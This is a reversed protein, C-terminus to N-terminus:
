SKATTKYKRKASAEQTPTVSGFSFCLADVASGPVPAPSLEDLRHIFELPSHALAAQEDLEPRNSGNGLFAVVGDPINPKTPADICSQRNRTLKKDIADRAKKSEVHELNQELPTGYFLLSLLTTNTDLVEALHAGITNNLEPNDNLQMQLLTTNQRLMTILQSLTFVSLANNSFNISSLKPHKAIANILLIIEDSDKKTLKCDSMDLHVLTPCAELVLPLTTLIAQTLKFGSLNLVAPKYQGTGLAVLIELSEAESLSDELFSICEM